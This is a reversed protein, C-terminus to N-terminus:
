GRGGQASHKRGTSICNVYINVPLHKIFHWKYLDYRQLKGVSRWCSARTPQSGRYLTCTKFTCHMCYEHGKLSRIHPSTQTQARRLCVIVPIKPQPRYLWLRFYIRSGLDAPMSCHRLIFPQLRCVSGDSSSAPMQFIDSVRRKTQTM